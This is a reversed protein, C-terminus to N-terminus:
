RTLTIGSWQLTTLSACSAIVMISAFIAVSAKGRTTATYLWERRQLHASMDIVAIANACESGQSRHVTLAYAHLVDKTGKPLVSSEGSDEFRVTFGGEGVSVIEGREGNTCIRAFPPATGKANQTSVVQDGLRWVVCGQEGKAELWPKSADPPNIVPQLARNLSAVTARTQAILLFPLGDAHLRAARRLAAEVAADTGLCHAVTWADSETAAVASPEGRCMAGTKQSIVSGPGTRHVTQLRTTPIGGCSMLDRLAAGPGVSPLQADDGVFMLM